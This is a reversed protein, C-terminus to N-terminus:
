YANKTSLLVDSQKHSQSLILSPYRQVVLIHFRIRVECIQRTQQRASLSLLSFFSGRRKKATGNDRKGDCWCIMHPKSETEFGTTSQIIWSIYTSGWLWVWTMTNTWQLKKLSIRLNLIQYTLSHCNRTEDTYKILLNISKGPESLSLCFVFIVDVRM